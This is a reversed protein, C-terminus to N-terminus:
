RKRNRGHGAHYADSHTTNKYSPEVLGEYIYEAIEMREFINVTKKFSIYECYLGRSYAQKSWSNSMRNLIIQNLETVYFKDAFTEGRSPLCKNM